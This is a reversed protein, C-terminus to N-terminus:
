GVRAAGFRVLAADPQTLFAYIEPHTVFSQWVPVEPEPPEFPTGILDGLRRLPPADPYRPNPEVAIGGNDAVLYYALGRRARVPQYDPKFAKGYLGAMLAPEDTANILVHAYGPPITIVFGPTMEVLACDALREPNAPDRKQLFLLLRGHLQTYIEPFGHSTGALPPHYHGSTKIYERGIRRPPLLVPGYTLDYQGLSQMVRAPAQVLHYLYYLETEPALTEPALLVERMEHATRCGREFTLEADVEIDLAQPDFWLSFGAFHSLDLKV